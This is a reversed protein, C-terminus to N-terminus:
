SRCTQFVTLFQPLLVRTSFSRTLPPIQHFGTVNVLDLVAFQHSLVRQTGPTTWPGEHCVMSVPEGAPFTTVGFPLATLLGQISM